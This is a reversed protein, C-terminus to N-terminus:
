WVKCDAKSQVECCELVYGKLVNLWALLCTESKKLVPALNCLPFAYFSLIKPIILSDKNKALNQM